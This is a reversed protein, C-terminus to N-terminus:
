IIWIFPYSSASFEQAFRAKIFQRLNPANKSPLHGDDARTGRQPVLVVEDGLAVFVSGVVDAGAEGAPRLYVAAVFQRYLYLGSVVAFVYLFHAEEEVAFAEDAGDGAHQFFVTDYFAARSRQLLGGRPVCVIFFIRM